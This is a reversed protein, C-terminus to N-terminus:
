LNHASKLKNCVEIIDGRNGFASFRFYGEGTKGFGIGPVGVIQYNNILYDFYEWSSMGEPCKIWVYPSNNSEVVQYNLRKLCNKLIKANRKYYQINKKCEIQGEDSLAYQAGKQVFYPVGNFYTCQRRHWMQNLSCGDIILENSVITYGCRLNTFGATKSLSAIEIACTKAGEIEFISRPSDDEVFAEYACDFIIISKTKNAFNVWDSLESHSLTAGTPNNPSCLYILYSENKLGKPSIKYNNDSSAPLLVIQNGNLFNSDFYAPYTPDQIVVKVKDFLNLINGVDCGAGNSIFVTSSDIDINRKKYYDKVADKLFNYGVEPPYGKFTKKNGQESLARKMIKIINKGLPRTVDGIGLNLLKANPHSNKYQAIKTNIQTFIYNKQLKQYNKNIKISM